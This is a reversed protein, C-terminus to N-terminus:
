ELFDFRYPLRDEYIYIQLIYNILRYTKMVCSKYVQIFSWIDCCFKILSHWSWWISTASRDSMMSFWNSHRVQWPGLAQLIDEKDRANLKTSKACSEYSYPKGKKRVLERVLPLGKEIMFSSWERPAWLCESCNGFSCPSMALYCLESIEPTVPVGSSMSMSCRGKFELVARAQAFIYQIRFPHQLRELM